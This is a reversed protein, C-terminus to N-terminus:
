YTYKKLLKDYGEQASPYRDGFFFSEARWFLADEELSTDPWRDAATGFQKAAEDYKKERFLRQGEEFAARAVQENPGYGAMEKVKKIVNSPALADLDFGSGEEEDDKKKPAPKSAAALTAATIVTEKPGPESSETASTQQIESSPQRTSASDGSAAPRKDQGTLRKFLWGEDEDRDSNQGRSREVNARASEPIPPVTHCGGACGALCAALLIVHYRHAAM